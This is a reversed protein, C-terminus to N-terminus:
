QNLARRSAVYYGASAILAGLGVIAAVNEGMGTKPLEPPTTTEECKSLDKTHKSADFDKEDITVIQKTTLDCVDVTVVEKCDDLNKSYKSADFDAEKITVIKKTALECVTIDKPLAPVEFAGTCSKSTATKDVGNVSFTVTAQVTYKGPTTQTYALTTSNSKKTDVVKGDANKVVYTVSKFTANVATYQVKFNFHTRDVVTIGLSKCAYEAVPPKCTQAPVTVNAGDEKSGNATEVRAVNKLTTVKCFQEKDSSVKASFKMYAVSKPAYNGINIGSSAVLNDSVNKASPNSTNMLYSSGKVYSLNKPLTDKLVVNNQQTTGTNEYRLQYEVTAGPKAEVNEKWETTGALRVQKSLTFNPQDAVIDFTVYGSFENCGPVDGNLANYGITAGSTIISDALKAGNIAGRNHITASGPVYRIAIDGATSNKFSIDDWVQKPTANSAGVYGVAKTGNSGKAVVAPLEAKVYAGHAIGKGSANLNSAANNHYYMFVTYKKGPTLSVSEAYTSNSASAEKVQVFNREDGHAPNNTISNFTVYDAPKEITFTERGPGWAFVAAPVIVAAAIMAVIATFRKPARRILSTLTSM